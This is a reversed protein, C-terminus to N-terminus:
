YGLLAGIIQNSVLFGEPTLRVGKEDVKLLKHPIKDARQLILKESIGFNRCESYLLGECLRLKLMAFEDFSHPAEEDVTIKQCPANIFDSLNRDVYFRKGDYYSHAAPGIGLYEECRWYKLNHKCEADKRAFNSIEYQKLGIKELREVASLYIECTADEDPLQLDASAFPTNAEIKLMYASVHSVPLESIVDISETVSKLTQLPTGLMLDVSINEFGCKKALLVAARAQEATHRRGLKLLEYNSFSQVGFSIRNVGANVLASLAEEAVSCPNAEISIEYNESIHVTSLISCIENWLLSPTGGGFYVSDFVEDYNGLNRIVANKYSESLSKSYKVSYFDCYPCKSLCFPVHIYLGRM